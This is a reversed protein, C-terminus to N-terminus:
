QTLHYEDTTYHADATRKALYSKIMSMSKSRDAAPWVSQPRREAPHTQEHVHKLRGIVVRTYLQTTELKEHGLIVPAIGADGLILKFPFHNCSAPNLVPTCRVTLFSIATNHQHQITILHVLQLMPLSNHTPLPSFNLLSVPNTYLVRKQPKRM